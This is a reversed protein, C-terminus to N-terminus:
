VYRRNKSTKRCRQRGFIAIICITVTAVLVAAVAWVAKSTHMKPKKEDENELNNLNFSQEYPNITTQKTESDTDSKKKDTQMNSSLDSEIHKTSKAFNNVSKQTYKATTSLTTQIKNTMTTTTPTTTPANMEEIIMQEVEELEADGNSEFNHDIDEENIEEIFSELPSFFSTLAYISIDDIEFLKNM